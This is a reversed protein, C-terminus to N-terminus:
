PNNSQISSPDPNIQLITFKITVNFHFMIAQARRRKMIAVQHKGDYCTM